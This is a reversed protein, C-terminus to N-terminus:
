FIDEELLFGVFHTWPGFNADNQEHLGSGDRNFLRIQDGKILQLTSQITLTEANTTGYAQGIKFWDSTANKMQLDVRANLNNSSIALFSFFYTGPRPAVFVGTSNIANGVNSRFM